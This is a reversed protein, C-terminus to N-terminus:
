GIILAAEDQLMLLMHSRSHSTAGTKMALCPALNLDNKVAAAVSSEYAKIVAVVVIIGWNTTM